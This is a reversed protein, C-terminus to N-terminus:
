LGKTEEKGAKLSTEALDAEAEAKTEAEVREALQSGFMEEMDEALKELAVTEEDEDFVEGGDATMDEDWQHTPEPTHDLFKEALVPIVTEDRALIRKVCEEGEEDPVLKKMESELAGFDDDMRRVLSEEDEVGMFEWLAQEAINYMFFRRGDDVLTFIFSQQENSFLIPRTEGPIRYRINVIMEIQPLMLYYPSFWYFTLLYSWHEWACSWGAPVIPPCPWVEKARAIVARAEDDAQLALFLDPNDYNSISFKPRVMPLELGEDNLRASATTSNSRSVIAPNTLDIFLHFFDLYERTPNRM